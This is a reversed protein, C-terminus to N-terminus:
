SNSELAAVQGRASCPPLAAVEVVLSPIGGVSRTLGGLPRVLLGDRAIIDAATWTALIV